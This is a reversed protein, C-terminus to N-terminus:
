NTPEESGVIENKQDRKEPKHHLKESEDEWRQEPRKLIDVANRVGLGPQQEGQQHEAVRGHLEGAAPKPVAKV